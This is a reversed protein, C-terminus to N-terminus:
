GGPGFDGDGVGRFRVRDGPFGGLDGVRASFWGRTCGGTRVGTPEGLFSGGTVSCGFVSLGSVICCARVLVGLGVLVRRLETISSVSSSNTVGEVPPLMGFADAAAISLLGTVAMGHVKSTEIVFDSGCSAGSSEAGMM